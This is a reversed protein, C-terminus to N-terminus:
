IRFRLTSVTTGAVTLEGIAKGISINLRDDTYVNEGILKITQAQGDPFDVQGITFANRGEVTYRNKTLLTAKVDSIRTVGDADVVVLSPVSIEFDLEAQKMKFQGNIPSMEFTFDAKESKLGPLAYNSLTQGDWGWRGQGTLTTNQGFLATMAQEGEGMLNATLDFTGLHAFMVRHDIAYNFPVQFLDPPPQQDADPDPYNMMMSGSSTLLSRKHTADSFRLPTTGPPPNTLVALAQQAKYGVYASAGVWAVTLLVGLTLVSVLKKNM